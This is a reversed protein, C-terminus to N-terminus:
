DPLLEVMGNSGNSRRVCGDGGKRFVEEVHGFTEVSDLRRESIGNKLSEGEVGGAYVPFVGSGAADGCAGFGLVYDTREM